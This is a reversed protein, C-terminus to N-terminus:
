RGVYIRLEVQDRVYKPAGTPGSLSELHTFRM